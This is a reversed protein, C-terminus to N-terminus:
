KQYVAHSTSAKTINQQIRAVRSSDSENVLKEADGQQLSPL